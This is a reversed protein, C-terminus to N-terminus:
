NRRAEKQPNSRPPYRSQAAPPPPPPRRNFSSMPRPGGAGGRSSNQYQHNFQRPPPGRANGQRPTPRNVTYNASTKRDTRKIQLGSKEASKTAKIKEGLNEGFLFSDRKIERVIDLFKKDLSYMILNRRNLTERFHLDLLFQGTESLKKIIESKEVKDDILASLLNSISALGIGLDNQYRSLRTDRNRAAESVVASIEPNLKPAKLMKFNEPLLVSERIRLRQDKGLGDRLIRDWRETIEERVKPGFIEPKNKAEGLAELIEIPLPTEKSTSPINEPEQLVLEVVSKVSPSDEDSVEKDWQSLSDLHDSNVTEVSSDSKYNENAEYDFSRRRLRKQLRRIKRRIEEPDKDKHKRKGM